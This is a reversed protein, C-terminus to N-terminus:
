HAAASGSERKPRNMSLSYLAPRRDGFVDNWDNTRKDRARRLDCDGMLVKTSGDGPGDLLGGRENVIVSTGEFFEGREEGCRDCVAMFVRSLCASAMAITVPMSQGASAPMTRPWNMPICIIDAGRLALSRSMEPFEIDYCIAVGIRGLSTEVVPPRSNGPSFFRNEKAWLHIKRYITVHGDTDIVAASNFLREGSGHECFGGVVVIDHEISQKRWEKLTPGDHAEALTRAEDLSKFVYGSNALEPLVVIRAGSEVAAEIAQRTTERNQKVEGIQPALQCCAVRVCGQHSVEDGANM